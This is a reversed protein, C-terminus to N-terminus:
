LRVLAMESNDSRGLCLNQLFQKKPAPWERIFAKVEPIVGRLFGMARLIM